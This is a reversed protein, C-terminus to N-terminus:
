FGVYEVEEELQIIGETANRVKMKVASALGIVDGADAHGDTVLFNAHKESMMAHGVRFGKFGLRDIIWGSPITGQPTLPITEDRGLDFLHHLEELEAPGPPRWNKFMCGASPLEVPQHEKKDLLHKTLLAQSKAPDPSPQLQLVAELIVWGTEHKFRSDRYGFRCDANTLSQEAGDKLVRVAVVSDKMEPGWMGANGRIAGGVTGPLGVAWEFGTLGAAVTKQAVLGPTAGAEVTVRTGDIVIGRNAMLIVLAPLGEDAVLVNSGGGLVYYPLNLETAARVAKIVEAGTAAAFFYDAPGGIKFTTHPALPEKEKVGPGLRAQLEQLM